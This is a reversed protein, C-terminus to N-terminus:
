LSNKKDDKIECDDCWTTVETYDDFWELATEKMKKKCNPCNMYCGGIGRFAVILWPSKKLFSIQFGILVLPKLLKLRWPKQNNKKEYNLIKARAFLVNLAKVEV